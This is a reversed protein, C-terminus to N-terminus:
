DLEFFFTVSPDMMNSCIMMCKIKTYNAYLESVKRSTVGWDLEDAFGMVEYKNLKFISDYWFNAQLRYEQPVLFSATQNPYM